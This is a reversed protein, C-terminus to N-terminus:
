STSGHAVELNAKAVQAANKANDYADKSVSKPELEFSHTQKDLQDQSTKLNAAALEVQARAVELTEKRPQAKLEELVARAAEAQSELQEVAARQVSDDLHLLPAGQTVREGEAVLIHTVM